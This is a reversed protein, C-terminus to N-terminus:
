FKMWESKSRPQYSKSFSELLYDLREECFMEAKKGLFRLLNVTCTVSAMICWENGEQKCHSKKFVLPDQAMLKGLQIEADEKSNSFIRQLIDVVYFWITSTNGEPIGILRDVLEGAAEECFKASQVQLMRILQIVVVANALPGEVPDWLVEQLQSSRHHTLWLWQHEAKEYTTRQMVRLFEVVPVYLKNERSLLRLEFASFAPTSFEM